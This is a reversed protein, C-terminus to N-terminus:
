RLGGLGRRELHGSRFARQRMTHLILIRRREFLFKLASSDRHGRGLLLSRLLRYSEHCFPLDRGYKKGVLRESFSGVRARGAVRKGLNSGISKFLVFGLSSLLIIQLLMCLNEGLASSIAAAAQNDEGVFM